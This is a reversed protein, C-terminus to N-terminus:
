RAVGLRTMAARVAALDACDIARGGRIVVYRAQGYAGLVREIRLGSLAAEAQLTRYNKENTTM